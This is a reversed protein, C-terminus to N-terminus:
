ALDPTPPEATHKKLIAREILRGEEDFLKITEGSM